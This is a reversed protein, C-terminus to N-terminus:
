DYVALIDSLLLFFNYANTFCAILSNDFKKWLFILKVLRKPHNWFIEQLYFGWYIKWFSVIQNASDASFTTSM